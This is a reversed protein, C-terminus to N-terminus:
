KWVPMFGASGDSLVVSIWTHPAAVTIAPCNAGLLASGAGTSNTGNFRPPAQLRLQGDGRVGLMVVGNAELTLLDFATDAARDAQIRVIDGAFSGSSARFIAAAGSPANENVYLRSGSTATSEGVALPPRHWSEPGTASFYLLRHNSGTPLTNDAVIGRYTAIGAGANEVKLQLGIGLTIGGGNTQNRVYSYLGTGSAMVGGDTNRVEGHVGEAVAITGSGTTENAAEGFLGIGLSIVGNGTLHAASGDNQIRVGAYAGRMQQLTGPVGWTGNFRGPYISEVIDSVGVNPGGDLHAYYGTMEGVTSLSVADAAGYMHFHHKASGPPTDTYTKNYDIWYNPDTRGLGMYGTVPDTSYAGTTVLAAGFRAYEVGGATWGAPMLIGTVFAGAGADFGATIAAGNAITKQKSTSGPSAVPLPSASSM